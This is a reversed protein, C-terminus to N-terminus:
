ATTNPDPDYAFETRRIVKIVIVIVILTILLRQITM